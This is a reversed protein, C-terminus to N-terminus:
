GDRAAFRAVLAGAVPLVLLSWYGALGRGTDEPQWMEPPIMAWTVAVLIAVCHGIVAGRFMARTRAHRRRYRHGMILLAVPIAFMGVLLALFGVSM